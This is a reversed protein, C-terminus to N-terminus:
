FFDSKQALMSNESIMNQLEKCNQLLAYGLEATLTISSELDPEKLNGYNAIVLLKLEYILLGKTKM